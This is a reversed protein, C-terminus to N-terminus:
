IRAAEHRIVAAVADITEDTTRHNVICARVWAAAPDGAWPFTTGSLMATGDANIAALLRATDAPPRGRLRFAVTSLGPPWPLELREDSRLATDLRGALAICRDLAAEFPAWGHYRLAMWVRLGRFPRTLELSYDSLDPVVDEMALDRLYAADAAHALRLLQGDRAPVHAPM